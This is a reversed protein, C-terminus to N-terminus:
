LKVPIVGYEEKLYKVQANFHRLTYKHSPDRFLIVKCSEKNKYRRVGRGVSQMFQNKSKGLGAIIIYEAPKTDIGEGLVGVTGVLTTIRQSNFGTILDACDDEQGNAFDLSLPLCIRHGHSIEKVLCLSSIQAQHLSLLLDSIIKNRDKRNVVLESYVQSWTHAETKLKPLDYYYAEVPVIAKLKVAQEYSISYLVKSTLGEMLLQEEENSRFPTATMCFKYYITDWFKKDLQRYTKAAAHHAEDIILLDYDGKCKLKESDINEITINKLDGFYGAFVETLQRKLGLNPVVILTKLQLKDVLLAMILTKGLGTTARCIGRGNSACLAEIAAKQEEYPTQTLSLKFLGPRPEPLKRLDKKIYNTKTKQLTQEVLYVLGSPFEGRKNILYRINRFNQSFYSTQSDVKYSLVTRLASFESPSCNEVISSSNLVTLKIM